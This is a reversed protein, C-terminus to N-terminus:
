LWVQEVNVKEHPLFVHFCNKGLTFVFFNWVCFYLFFELFLICFLVVCLCFVGVSSRKRFFTVASIKPIKVRSLTKTKPTQRLNLDVSNSNSASIQHTPLEWASWWGTYELEFWVFAACIRYKVRSLWVQLYPKRDNDVSVSIISLRPISWRVLNIFFISLSLNININDPSVAEPHYGKSPYLSRPYLLQTMMEKYLLAFVAMRKWRSLNYIIEYPLERDVRLHNIPTTKASKRILYTM